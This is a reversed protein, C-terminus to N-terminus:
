LFSHFLLEEIISREKWMRHIIIHTLEDHDERVHRAPNRASQCGIVIVHWHWPSVNDGEIGIVAEGVTMEGM